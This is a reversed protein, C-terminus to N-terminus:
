PRLRCAGSRGDRFPILGTGVAVRARIMFVLVLATTPATAMNADAQEDAALAGWAEDGGDVVAGAPDAAVVKGLEM